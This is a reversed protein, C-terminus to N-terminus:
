KKKSRVSAPIYFFPLVGVKRHVGEDRNKEGHEGISLLYGTRRQRWRNTSGITVDQGQVKVINNVVANYRTINLNPPKKKQKKQGQSDNEHLRKM